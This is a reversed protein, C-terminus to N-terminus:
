LSILSRFIPTKKHPNNWNFQRFDGTPYGYVWDNDETEQFLYLSDQGIVDILSYYNSLALETPPKHIGSNKHKGLMIGLGSTTDILFYRESAM